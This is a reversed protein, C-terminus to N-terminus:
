TNIKAKNRKSWYFSDDEDEQLSVAFEIVSNFAKIDTKTAHNWYRVSGDCHRLFFKGDVDVGILHVQKGKWWYADLPPSKTTISVVQYKTRNFETIPKLWLESKAKELAEDDKMQLKTRVGTEISM